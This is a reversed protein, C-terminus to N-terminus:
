DTYVDGRHMGGVYLSRVLGAYLFRSGEQPPLPQPNLGGGVRAAAAASLPRSPPPPSSSLTQM